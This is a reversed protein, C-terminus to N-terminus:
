LMIWNPLKLKKEEVTVEGADTISLWDSGQLNTTCIGCRHRKKYNKEMPQDTKHKLVM